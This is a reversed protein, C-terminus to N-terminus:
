IIRWPLVFDSENRGRIHVKKQNELSYEKTLKFPTRIRQIRYWCTEDGRLVANEKLGKLWVLPISTVLLVAHGRLAAKALVRAFVRNSIGDESIKVKSPIQRVIIEIHRNHIQMGQSRYVKQIKNVLSHPNQAISLEIGITLGGPICCIRTLHENWGDIRKENNM